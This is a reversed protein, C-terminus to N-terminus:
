SVFQKGSIVAEVAALLHTEASTKFVYGQAGLSLAAQVVDISTEQSLFIIKSEPVLKRIQRAAAIGNLGPLGIDLLILDPKLELAKRVAELGDSAFDVVCLHPNKRLKGLVYNRWAAFDDVVLVRIFSLDRIAKEEKSRRLFTAIFMRSGAFRRM